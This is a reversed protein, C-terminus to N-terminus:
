ELSKELNELRTRLDTVEDIRAKLAHLELLSKADELAISSSMAADVIVDSSSVAGSPEQELSVRRSPRANPILKDLCSKLLLQDGDLAREVAKAVLAPAHPSLLEALLTRKDSVGPPRGKPNGSQGKSFPM